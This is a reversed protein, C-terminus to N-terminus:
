GVKQEPTTPTASHGTQPFYIWDRGQWRENRFQLSDLHIMVTANLLNKQTNALKLGTQRTKLDMHNPSICHHMEQNPWGKNGEVRAGKLM